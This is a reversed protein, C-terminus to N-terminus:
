EFSTGQGALKVLLPSPQWQAGQYGQQYKRVRALVEGLGLTNAYHMPGGKTIPFGYGTTYVVDIDSARQAIGEDLIQAGENALALMLRDVIEEDAVTRQAVGVAERYARLIQDVEPDPLRERGGPEYRYWGKGTKQGLRGAECLRDAVRSYVMEPREVYRRKRISWGVDLGSLDGVALPGMAMGFKEMAADIQEVSCGEDLLFLAQQLYRQLMRNGIFGDCVRSLVATKKLKRALQMVSVLVEDSTKACRVVELLRMVHAPSFFHMGIVTSERQTVAAIRDIDLMSTNTALIAGEPAIRDLDRFIQQKLDLREFVAEVVLDVRSVAAALDLTPSVLQLVRTRADPTLRGKGVQADYFERITAIGRELGENKADVLVVPIGANAFCIAIGVGMTGAGIVAAKRIERPSADPSLGAIKTAQREAFFNYRLAKSEPTALLELFRAREFERGAEFPLTTAAECCDVIYLKGKHGPTHKNIDARLMAFLDTPASAMRAALTSTRRLPAKATILKRAYALADDLLNTHSLEDVLGHDFADTAGLPAGSLMMPAANEMPMLRPLRQTGGAGPLFGFKVEPLGLQANAAAVRYHMAMALELGAGFAFGGIAAILLKNVEDCGEILEPMTPSANQALTNFERIEAGGCFPQSGGTVIIAQVDDRAAAHLILEHLKQRQPASLSNVPPNDFSVVAVGDDVVYASEM